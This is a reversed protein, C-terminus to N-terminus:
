FLKQFKKLSIKFHLTKSIIQMIRLQKHYVLQYVLQYVLELLVQFLEALV